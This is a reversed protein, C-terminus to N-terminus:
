EHTSTSGIKASKEESNQQFPQKRALGTKQIFFPACVREPQSEFTIWFWFIDNTLLQEFCRFGVTKLQVNMGASFPEASIAVCDAQVIWHHQTTSLLHADRHVIVHHHLAVAGAEHAVDAVQVVHPLRARDEDPQLELRGTLPEYTTLMHNM